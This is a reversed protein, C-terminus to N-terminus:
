KIWGRTKMDDLRQEALTRAALVSFDAIVKRFAEAAKPYQRLQLHCFGMEYYAWALDTEFKEREAAYTEILAQYERLARGYERFEYFSQAAEALERPTRSKPPPADKKPAGLGLSVLLLFSLLLPVRLRGPGTHM